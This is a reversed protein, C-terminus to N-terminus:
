LKVVFGLALLACAEQMDEARIMSLKALGGYTADVVETTPLVFVTNLGDDRHANKFLITDCLIGTESVVQNGEFITEITKTVTTIEGRIGINETGDVNVFYVIAM